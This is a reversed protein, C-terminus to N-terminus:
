LAGPNPVACATKVLHGAMCSQDEVVKQYCDDSSVLWGTGSPAGYGCVERLTQAGQILTRASTHNPCVYTRSLDQTASINELQLRTSIEGLASDSANQNNAMAQAKSTELGTQEILLSWNQPDAAAPISELTLNRSVSQGSVQGRFTLMLPLISCLHSNLDIQYTNLLSGVRLDYRINENPLHQQVAIEYGSNEAICTSAPITYNATDGHIFRM